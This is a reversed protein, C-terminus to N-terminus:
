LGRDALWQTVVSEVDGDTGEELMFLMGALSDASQDEFREFWVVGDWDDGEDAHLHAIMGAALSARNMMEAFGKCVLSTDTTEENANGYLCMAYFLVAVDEQDLTRQDIGIM